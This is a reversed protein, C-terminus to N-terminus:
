RMAGRWVADLSQLTVLNRVTYGYAPNALNTANDEVDPEGLHFGDEELGSNPLTELARWLNILPLDYDWAVRVVIKNFFLTRDWFGKNGPFTSLVPVVGADMSKQVLRRLNYDFEYPTMVLLDSTGFMIVAVSSNHIRFECELPSEGKQCVAPNAWEPAIVANVNYGNHTAEGDYALSEGFQDIVGQLSGYSGLNYRGWAFPKLFYWHESSCDGVKALARPDRGMARGNLFISRATGTSRAVIPVQMLDIGAVRAPNYGGLAIGDFTVYNPSPPAIGGIVATVAETSVPLGGVSGEIVLLAASMWGRAGTGINQGLVWTGEANRAELALAAGSSVTGVVRFTTGPGGRMNLTNNSHAPLSGAPAAPAAQEVVPAAPPAAQAGAVVETSVPLQAGVFGPAYSLYLASLWGRYVGDATRGLFWTVEGDRAELVLPTNSPLQAVVAHDPGPGTRMNLVYSTWANPEQAAAPRTVGGPLMGALLAAAVIVVWGVRKM